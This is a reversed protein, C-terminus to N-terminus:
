REEGSGTTTWAGQGYGEDIGVHLATVNTPMTIEDKIRDLVYTALNEASSSVIPLRQCDEEPFMYRKDQLLVEVMGDSELIKLNGNDPILIRHDLENAINNMVKKLVSFDMIIGRADVEGVVIAHIAYTHGHLRGCKAYEPIFHASSFTIHTRWGDVKIKM